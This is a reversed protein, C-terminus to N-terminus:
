QSEVGTTKQTPNLLPKLVPGEARLGHCVDVLSPAVKLGETMWRGDVRSDNTYPVQENMRLFFVITTMEGLGLLLTNVHTCGQTGGLQNLVSKRWGSMLKHGVLDQSAPVVFPCSAYPHSFADVSLEVVTLQPGEVEGEIAFDHVVVSDSGDFSGGTATDTLRAVFRFRDDGCPTVDLSKTRSMRRSTHDNSM